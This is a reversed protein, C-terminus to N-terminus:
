RELDAEVIRREKENLGYISYVLQDIKHDVDGMKEELSEKERLDKEKIAVYREGLDNIKDVLAALQELQKSSPKVIPLIRLQPAQFQFYGGGMKLGAFLESYVFAILKSNLVAALYRLPYDPKPSHICNTNISSFGGKGDLFGEPRLALKAIIIKPNQYLERRMKSIKSPDLVPHLLKEGKVKIPQYGYTTSYRDITGTHVLPLGSGGEKIERSYEDAEKATSTAQVHAVEELPKSNKFIKEILRVNESLIMGWLNEPLVSLNKSSVDYEQKDELNESFIRETVLNYEKSPRRNRIVTILPYVSPDQFVKVKSLDLVKVLTSEQCVKERMAVGYPSSLYKNPTIFSVLGSAKSVKLAQEFFLIYIDYAGRAFLYREKWYDKVKSGVTKKLEIANIYPPNGIVVDFGGSEMVDKFEVSWDFAKDGAVEPDSILSNGCKINNKLTPLKHRTEAAKLLLNLQTIEMAQPDLDVGYICKRLVDDMFSSYSKESDLDLKTQEHSKKSKVLYSAYWDRFADYAKILFSGSGCAPDLVRIKLADEPTKCRKLKEGLTNKVIYEVIYKPTYYIGQSKRKSKQKAERSEKPGKQLYALYQEYVAGLVDADIIDFNYAHTPDDEKYLGEIVEYLVKDDIKVKECLHRKSEDKEDYTFLKSNFKKDYELYTKNLLSTFHGRKSQKHQRALASM